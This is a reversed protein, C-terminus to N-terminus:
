PCLIGIHQVSPLTIGLVTATACKGQYLLTVVFVTSHLASCSASALGYYSNTECHLDVAFWLQRVLGTATCKGSQVLNGAAGVLPLVVQNLFNV